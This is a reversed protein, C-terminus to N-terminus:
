AQDSLLREEREFLPRVLRHPPGSLIRQRSPLASIPIRACTAAAPLFCPLLPLALLWFFRHM